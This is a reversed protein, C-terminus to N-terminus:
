RFIRSIRRMSFSNHWHNHGYDQYPTWPDNPEAADYTGGNYGTAEGPESLGGGPHYLRALSVARREVEARITFCLYHRRPLVSDGRRRLWRTLRVTSPPRTWRRVTAPRESPVFTIRLTAPTRRPRHMRFSVHGVTGALALPSKLYIADNCRTGLMAASSKSQFGTLPSRECTDM